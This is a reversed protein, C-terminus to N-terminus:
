GQQVRALFDQVWPEGSESSDLPRSEQETLRGNLCWALFVEHESYEFLVLRRSGLDYEISGDQDAFGSSDPLAEPLGAELLARWRQLHQVRTMPSERVPQPFRRELYEAVAALAGRPSAYGYPPEQELAIVGLTIPEPLGSIRVRWLGDRTKFCHLEFNQPPEQPGM